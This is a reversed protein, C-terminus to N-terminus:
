PKLVKRYALLAAGLAGAFQCLPHVKIETKLENELAHVVGHNLAVGGSMTVDPIVGNRFVLAAVRKAVSAHIGAVLDPLRVKNSLKSIVESEAFVTCTSSISAVEVAADSIKGLDETKVNMVGAMVDLFRGTGAACKDNMVFNDLQGRENLRLAKIDQGGIDVITRVTPLLFHIGAAHCTIESKQSNADDFQFRGYGTVLVHALNRSSIKAEALASDFVKRPGITGTGLPYVAKGIIEEGDKLIVCKCATSGIDLGMTFYKNEGIKM